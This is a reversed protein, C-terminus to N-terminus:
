ICLLVKLILETIKKNMFGDYGHIGTKTGHDLMQQQDLANDQRERKRREQKQRLRQKDFELKEQLSTIIGEQLGEQSKKNQSTM